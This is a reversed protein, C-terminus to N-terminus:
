FTVSVAAEVAAAPLAITVRVPVDPVSVCEAVTANVMELVGGAGSKESETNGVDSVMVIPAVPPWSLTRAVGILEKLPVTATDM